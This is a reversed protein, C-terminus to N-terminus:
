VNYRLRELLGYNPEVLSENREDKSFSILGCEDMKKFDRIRTSESRYLAVVEPATLLKKLPIRGWSILLKLFDVTRRNIKVREFRKNRLLYEIYDSLMVQKLKKLVKGKIANIEDRYGTMGWLIFERPDASERIKHLHERYQDKHSSWFNAL